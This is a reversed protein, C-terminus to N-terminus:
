LEMCMQFCPTILFKTIHIDGGTNQQLLGAMEMASVTYLYLTPMDQM